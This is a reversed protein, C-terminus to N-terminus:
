RERFRNRADSAKTNTNAARMPAPAENLRGDFGVPAGVRRQLEEDFAAICARQTMGNSCPFSALAAVFALHLSPRCFGLYRAYATEQCLAGFLEIRRYFSQRQAEDEFLKGATVWAENFVADESPLAGDTGTDPLPARRRPANGDGNLGTLFLVFGYRFQEFELPAFRDAAIEGAPRQATTM